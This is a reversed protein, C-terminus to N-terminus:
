EAVSENTGLLAARLTRVYIIQKTPWSAVILLLVETLALWRADNLCEPLAINYSYSQTAFLQLLFALSLVIAGVLYEAHQACLAKKVELNSGWKTAAKERIAAPTQSVTGVCFWIAAVFGASASSISLINQLNM